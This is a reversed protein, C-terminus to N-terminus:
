KFARLLTDATSTSYPEWNGQAASQWEHAQTEAHPVPHLTAEEHKLDSNTRVSARVCAWVGAQSGERQGESSPDSKIMIGAINHAIVSM